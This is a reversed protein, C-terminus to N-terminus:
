IHILSLSRLSSPSEEPPPGPPLRDYGPSVAALPPTKEERVRDVPAVLTHRTIWYTAAIVAFVAGLGVFFWGYRRRVAGEAVELDPAMVAEMPNTGRKAKEKDQELRRLADLIYSM